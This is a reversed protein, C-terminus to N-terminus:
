KLVAGLDVPLAVGTVYRAQDSALWVVAETVDSPMAWPAPLLNMGQMLPAVDDATPSELDPRFLGFLAANEIMPTLVNGPHVSNVRISLRSLEHAASRMLGVLGHKSSTYGPIGGHTRLGMISSVLIVSGPGGRAIMGRCGAQLTVFVGSLNIDIVERWVEYSTALIGMDDGSIGANAIVVDVVGLEASAEDVAAFMGPHDRVDVIRSFCRRGEAEVLRKTEALDEPTAGPYGTAPIDTCADTAIVDAGEQAFRVAHSRGQGRAAGTILVVKGDFLGM